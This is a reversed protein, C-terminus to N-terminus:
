QYEEYSSYKENQSEEIYRSKRIKKLIEKSKQRQNQKRVKRIVKNMLNEISSDLSSAYYIKDSNKLTFTGFLAGEKTKHFCFTARGSLEDQFSKVKEKLKLQSNEGLKFNRCQIEIKMMDEKINM